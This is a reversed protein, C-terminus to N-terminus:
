PTVRFTDINLEESQFKELEQAQKILEKILRAKRIFDKAPLVPKSGTKPVDIKLEIWSKCGKHSQSNTILIPNRLAYLRLLLIKGSHTPYLNWSSVLHEDSNVLESSANLLYDIKEVTIVEEINAWYKIKIQNDRNTGSNPNFLFNFDKKVKDESQHTFTPFLVFENVPVNFSEFKARVSPKDDIGGKRWSAVVLGKGLAEITTDWEKLAYKM